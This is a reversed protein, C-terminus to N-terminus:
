PPSQNSNSRPRSRQEDTLWRERLHLVCSVYGVKWNEELSEDILARKEKAQTLKQEVVPVLSPQERQHHALVQEWMSIEKDARGIISLGVTEHQGVIVSPFSTSGEFMDDELSLDRKESQQVTEQPPHDIQAGTLKTSRTLRKSRRTTPNRTPSSAKTVKRPTSPSREDDSARTLKDAPSLALKKLKQFFATDATARGGKPLAQTRTSVM